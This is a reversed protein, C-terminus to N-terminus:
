INQSLRHIIVLLYQYWVLENDAKRSPRLAWRSKTKGKSWFSSTFQKKGTASWSDEGIWEVKAVKIPCPWYKIPTMKTFKLLFQTRPTQQKIAPIPTVHSQTLTKSKHSKELSSFILFINLINQCRWWTMSKRRLIRKAEILMDTKWYIESRSWSKRKRKAYIIRFIRLFPM